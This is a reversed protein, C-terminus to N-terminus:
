YKGVDAFNINERSAVDQGNHYRARRSESTGGTARKDAVMALWVDAPSLRSLVRDLTRERRGQRVRGVPQASM